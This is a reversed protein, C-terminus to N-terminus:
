SMWNDFFCILTAPDFNNENDQEQGWFLSSPTTNKKILSLLM